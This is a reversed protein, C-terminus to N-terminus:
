SFIIEKYRLYVTVDDIFYLPNGRLRLLEQEMIHNHNPIVMKVVSRLRGHTSPPFTTLAQESRPYKFEVSKKHVHIEPKKPELHSYLYQGNPLDHNEVGVVLLM